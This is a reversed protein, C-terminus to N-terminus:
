YLPETHIEDKHVISKDYYASLGLKNQTYTVIKKGDVRFGTNQAKDTSGGLAALYRDWNMENTKKTVGKCSFKSKAKESEAYYWKSALAVMKIGNFEAKFSGPTRDLYKSISLFLAKAGQTEDNETKIDYGEDMEKSCFAIDCGVNEKVYDSCGKMLNELDKVDKKYVMLGDFVLSSVEVNISTLYDFAAMLTKNELSCMIYNVTTGTINYSGTKSKKGIQELESNLKVIIEGIDRLESLYGFFWDPCKRLQEKSHKAIRGNIITLLHAKAMDQNMELCDELDKLCKERNTIYYDLHECTISNQHCYYSLLTPHANKIDIDYMVDKCLTHRIKKSMNQIGLNKSTWYRGFNNRQYYGMALESNDNLENFYNKLLALQGEKEIKKGRIFRSGLEFKKLNNIIYELKKKDVKERLLIDRNNENDSPIPKPVKISEEQCNVFYEHRMEAKVVNDICDDSLAIYM